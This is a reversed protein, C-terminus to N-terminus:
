FPERSGNIWLIDQGRHEFCVRLYADERITFSQGSADTGRIDYHVAFYYRGLLTDMPHIGKIEALTSDFDHCTRICSLQGDTLPYLLQEPSCDKFHVPFSKTSKGNLQAWVLEQVLQRRHRIGLIVVAAYALLAACLLVVGPIYEM